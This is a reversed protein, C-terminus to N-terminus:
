KADKNACYSCYKRKKYKKTADTKSVKLIKHTCRKLGGCDEYKHYAYSGPSDCIYYDQRPLSAPAAALLVVLLFYMWVTKTTNKM